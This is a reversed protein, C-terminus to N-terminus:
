RPWPSSSRTPLRGYVLVLGNVAGVAAGTGLMALVTVAGGQGAGFVTAGVVASLALTSGVSLDIRRTLIVLLQGIALIAIVASQSLVNGLNQTTAFVPSLNSMVVVLVGLILVPGLRLLVLFGGVVRLRLLGAPQEEPDEPTVEKSFSSSPLDVDHGGRHRHHHMAELDPV